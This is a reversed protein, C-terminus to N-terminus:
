HSGKNEFSKIITGDKVSWIILRGTDDGSALYTYTPDYDLCLVMGNHGKLTDLCKGENVNWIKVTGDASGSALRLDVNENQTGVGTPSWKICHIMESHESLTFLPKDHKVNWLKV